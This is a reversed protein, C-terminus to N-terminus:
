SGEVGIDDPRWQSHRCIVFGLFTGTPHKGNQGSELKTEGVELHNRLHVHKEEERVAIQAAFVYQISLWCSCIISFWLVGASKMKHSRVANMSCFVKWWLVKSTKVLPWLTKGTMYALQGPSCPCTRPALHTCAMSPVWANSSLTFYAQTTPHKNKVVHHAWVWSYICYLPIVGLKQDKIGVSKQSIPSLINNLTLVNGIIGKLELSWWFGLDHGHNRSWAPVVHSRGTACTRFIHENYTLGYYRYM